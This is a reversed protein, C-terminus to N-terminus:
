RQLLFRLAEEHRPNLQLVKRFAEIASAREGSEWYAKALNLYASLNNPDFKVYERFLGTAARFDGRSLAQVGGDLLGRILEARESGGGTELGRVFANLADSFQRQGLYAKGIDLWARANGPQLKLYEIFYGISDAWRGSKLAAAGGGFLAEAFVPIVDASRPGLEYAKKANGIADTWKGMAIFSRAIWVYALWYKPDKSIVEAFKLVADDYKTASYLQQGDKMLADIQDQLSIGACGAFLMAVLVLLLSTWKHRMRSQATM